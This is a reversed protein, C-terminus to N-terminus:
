RSAFGAIRGKLDEVNKLLTVQPYPYLVFDRHHSVFLVRSYQLVYHCCRYCRRPTFIALCICCCVYALPCILSAFIM